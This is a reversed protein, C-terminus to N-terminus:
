QTFDISFCKFDREKSRQEKRGTREGGAGGGEVVVVGRRGV